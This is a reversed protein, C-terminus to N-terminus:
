RHHNEPKTYNAVKLLTQRYYTFVNDQQRYIQTQEPYDLNVNQQHLKPTMLMDM